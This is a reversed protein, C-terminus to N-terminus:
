KVCAQLAARPHRFRSASVIAYNFKIFRREHKKQSSMCLGVLSRQNPLLIFFFLKMFLNKASGILFMWESFTEGFVFKIVEDKRKKERYVQSNRKIFYKDGEDTM